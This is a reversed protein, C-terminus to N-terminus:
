EKIIIVQKFRIYGIVNYYSQKVPADEIYNELPIFDTIEQLKSVDQKKCYIYTEDQTLFDPLNNIM